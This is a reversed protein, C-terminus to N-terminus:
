IGIPAQNEISLTVTATACAHQPDCVTYQFSDPGVYGNTAVFFINGNGNNSINGHAPRVPFDQIFFVENDPDFDNATVNFTKCCHVTFSDDVAVPPHNDTSSASSLLILLPLLIPTILVIHFMRPSFSFM